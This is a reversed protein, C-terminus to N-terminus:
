QPTIQNTTIQSVFRSNISDVSAQINTLIETHAKLTAAQSAVAAGQNYVTISIWSIWSMGGAVAIGAIWTLVKIIGANKAQNIKITQIDECIQITKEPNLRGSLILNRAVEEALALKEIGQHAAEKLLDRADEAAHEIKEQEKNM